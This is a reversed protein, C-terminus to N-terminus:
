SASATKEVVPDVAGDRDITVIDNQENGDEDRHFYLSEGSPAWRFPYRADRPVTGDSVRTKEGTDPAVLYLENRGTGDYYVAVTDGDPSAAPHYFSPPGALEELPYSEPM